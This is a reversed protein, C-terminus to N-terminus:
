ALALVVSEGIPAIGQERQQLLTVTAAVTSFVEAANLDERASDAALALAVMRIAAAKPAGCYQRRNLLHALAEALCVAGNPANWGSIAHEVTSTPRINDLAGILSGDLSARIAPVGCGFMQRGAFIEVADDTSAGAPIKGAAKGLYGEAIWSVPIDDIGLLRVKIGNHYDSTFDRGESIVRDLISPFELARGIDFAYDANTPLTRTLALALRLFRDLALEGNLDLMLDLRLALDRARALALDRTLQRADGFTLDPARDLNLVDDLARDLVHDLNLVLALTHVLDRALDRTRDRTRDRALNRAIGYATASLVQVLIETERADSIVAEKIASSKVLHPHSGSKLVWLGAVNADQQPMTWLSTVTEPLQLALADNVASEQLESNDPLRFEAQLAGDAAIMTIWKLFELAESGWLGTVPRNPHPECPADPQASKSDRLFLWYLDAPVLRDCVRTGTSTTITQRTLRSALVGAILQRRDPDCGEEFAQDRAQDLRVRLDPALESNTEACDFALTLATITAKDLCARVIQDADTTAAYLLTTERWWQDDVADTITTALGPNSSIHQAALYEQFTLHTFAYRGPGPEVLLGNRSVDALFAQGSASQPLRQLLPDLIDLADSAALDSVRLCMMQYALTALLKHKTPWPLIEPLDKAQLRRSLMVQCIEGYLDARSGPLAGRYRHVMAIMTLLLPNVTLDHLAPNARLLALLRAASESARIQVARMQAKSAAGTAHREAALYWRNLFLQVQGATFPRVALIDAQAIVPGPFGHPRSTIVFHNGPNSNIQSEVWKAVARRDEARAVEDLGDLLIMCKGRRLQREWWGDPEKGPVGGVAPRVIDPLTTGPNAAITAAHERLTLLVPLRQRNRHGALACRRATHALLTSKGCGPPGVVALM